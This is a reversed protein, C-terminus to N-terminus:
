HSECHSEGVGDPPKSAGTQVTRCTQRRAPKAVNPTTANSPTFTRACAEFRLHGRQQTLRSFGILRLVPLVPRGGALIFQRDVHRLPLLPQRIRAASAAKPASSLSRSLRTKEIRDASVM